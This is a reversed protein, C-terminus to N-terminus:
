SANVSFNSFSFTQAVNDTSVLETGYCVQNLTASNTLWGQAIIWKFFPLLDMNASTFNQDAVFAVYTGSKWVQYTRGDMTVHAVVSGSPVQGRNYTWIMVETSSSTAIGNLWIDYAYEYIGAPTGSIAFSSPVSNLSTIKPSNNFDRQADPYTKVHGDGSNNNMDAVVYWDSYSCANLSQTVQYGSVGWMNNYVYYPSLNWMGFQASTTYQPKTCT